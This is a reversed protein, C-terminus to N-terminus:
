LPNAVIESIHFAFVVSELSLYLQNRFYQVKVVRDFGSLGAGESEHQCSEVSAM